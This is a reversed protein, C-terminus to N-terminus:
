YPWGWWLGTGWRYRDHHWWPDPGWGYGGYYGGYFEWQSRAAELQRLREEEAMARQQENQVQADLQRLREREEASIAPAARAMQEPTAREIRSGDPLPRLACGAALLALPALAALVARAALAHGAAPDPVPTRANM